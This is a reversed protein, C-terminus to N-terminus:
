RMVLLSARKLAVLLSGLICHKSQQSITSQRLELLM